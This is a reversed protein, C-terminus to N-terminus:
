QFYNKFINIKCVQEMAGTPLSGILKINLLTDMRNLIGSVNKAHSKAQEPSFGTSIWLAKLSGIPQDAHVTVDSITVHRSLILKFWNENWMFSFLVYEKCIVVKVYLLLIIRWKIVMQFVKCYFVLRTFSKPLLTWFISILIKLHM